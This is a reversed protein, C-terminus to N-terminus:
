TGVGDPKKGTMACFALRFESCSSKLCRYWTAFRDDAADASPDDTEGDAYGWFTAQWSRILTRWTVVMVCVAFVIVLVEFRVVDVVLVTTVVVVFVAVIEWCTVM